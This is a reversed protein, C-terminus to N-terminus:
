PTCRRRVARTAKLKARRLIEVSLLHPESALMEAVLGRFPEAKAPRGIGRAERELATDIQTVATEIDVRLVSRRSVGALAAVEIQDFFEM